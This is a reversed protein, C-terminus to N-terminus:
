MSYIYFINQKSFDQCNIYLSHIISYVVHIPICINYLLCVHYSLFCQSHKLMKHVPIYCRGIYLITYVIVYLYCYILYINIYCNLYLRLTYIYFAHLPLISTNYSGNQVLSTMHNNKRLFKQICKWVIWFRISYIIIENSFNRISKWFKYVFNRNYWQGDWFYSGRHFRDDDDDWVFFM